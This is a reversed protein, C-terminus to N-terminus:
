ATMELAELESPLYPTLPAWPRSPNDPMVLVGGYVYDPDSVTATSGDGIVRVRQGETFKTM